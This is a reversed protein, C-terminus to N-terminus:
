MLTKLLIIRLYQELVMDIKLIDWPICLVPAALKHKQIPSITIRLPPSFAFIVIISEKNNFYQVQIWKVYFYYDLFAINCSGIDMKVYWFDHGKIGGV